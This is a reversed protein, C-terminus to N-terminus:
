KILMSKSNSNLGWCLAQDRWLGPVASGTIPAHAAQGRRAGGPAPTSPHTLAGVMHVRPPGPEPPAWTSSAGSSYQPLRPHQHRPPPCLAARWGPKLSLRKWPKQRGGPRLWGVLCPANGCHHVGPWTNQKQRLGGAPVTGGWGRGWVALFGWSLCVDPRRGGRAQPPELWGPQPQLGLPLCSRCAPGGRWVGGWGM